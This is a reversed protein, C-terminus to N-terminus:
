FEQILDELVISQHVETAIPRLMLVSTKQNTSFSSYFAIAVSVVVTLLAMLIAILGTNQEICPRYKSKEYMKFLKIM